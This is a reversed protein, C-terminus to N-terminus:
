DSEEFLTGVITTLVDRFEKTARELRKRAAEPTIELIEGAQVSTMGRLRCLEFVQWSPAKATQRFRAIADQVVEAHFRRNLEEEPLPALRDPVDHTLSFAGEVRRGRARAFDIARREVLTFLWRRFGGKAQDYEFRPLQRLIEKWVEQLLDDAEQEPYRLKDAFRLLIGSYLDYFDEWAQRDAADLATHEDVAKQLYTRVARLLNPYTTDSM